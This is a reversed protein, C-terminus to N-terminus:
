GTVGDVMCLLHGYFTAAWIRERAFSGLCAGWWPLPRALGQTGPSAPELDNSHLASPSPHPAPRSKSLDDLSAKKTRNLTHVTNEFGSLGPLNPAQQLPYIIARPSHRPVSPYSATPHTVGSLVSLRASHLPQVEPLLPPLLHPQPTLAWSHLTMIFSMAEKAQPCEAIGKPM